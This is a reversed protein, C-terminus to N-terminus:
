MFDRFDDKAAQHAQDHAPCHRLNPGYSLAWLLTALSVAERKSELLKWVTCHGSTACLLCKVDRSPELTRKQPYLPCLGCHSFIGEFIRHLNALPNRALGAFSNQATGRPHGSNPTFRVNIPPAGIDAESGFRVNAWSWGLWKRHQDM